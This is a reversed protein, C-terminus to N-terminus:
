QADGAGQRAAWQDARDGAAAGDARRSPPPPPPTLLSVRSLQCLDIPLNPQPAHPPPPTLSAQEAAALAEELIADRLRLRTEEFAKQGGREMAVDLKNLM